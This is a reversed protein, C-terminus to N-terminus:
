LLAIKLARPGNIRSHGVFIPPNYKKPDYNYSESSVGSVIFLYNSRDLKLFSLYVEDM